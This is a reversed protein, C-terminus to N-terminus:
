SHSFTTCLILTETDPPIAGVHLVSSGGAELLSIKRLMKMERVGHDM